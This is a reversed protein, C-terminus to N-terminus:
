LEDESLGAFTAARTRLPQLFQPMPETRGLGGGNFDYRWGFSIVRRKGLFGHFEFAKFALDEFAAILAREEDATILEPQYRFGDPLDPPADFLSPQALPM